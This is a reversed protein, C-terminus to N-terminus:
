FCWCPTRWRFSEDSCSVGFGYVLTPSWYRWFSDNRYKPSLECVGEPTLPQSSAGGSLRFLLGRPATGSACLFSSCSIRMTLFRIAMVLSGDMATRLHLRYLHFQARDGCLLSPNCSLAMRCACTWHCGWSISSIGDKVMGVSCNQCIFNLISSLM